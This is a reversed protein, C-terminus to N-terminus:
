LTATSAAIPSATTSCLPGTLRATRALMDMGPMKMGTSISPRMYTSPPTISRMGHRASRSAPASTTM